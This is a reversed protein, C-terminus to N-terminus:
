CLGCKLLSSGTRPQTHCCVLALGKRGRHCPGMLGATLNESSCWPRFSKREGREGRVPCLGADGDLASRSGSGGETDELLM